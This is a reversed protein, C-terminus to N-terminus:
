ANQAKDSVPCSATRREISRWERRSRSASASMEAQRTAELSRSHEASSASGMATTLGCCCLLEERPGAPALRCSRRSFM